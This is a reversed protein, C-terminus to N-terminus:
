DYFWSSTFELFQYFRSSEQEIPMKLSLVVIFCFNLIFFCDFEYFLFILIPLHQFWLFFSLWRLNLIWIILHRLLSYPLSRALLSFFNGKTSSLSNSNLMITSFYFIHQQKKKKKKTIRITFFPHVRLFYIFQIKQALKLYQFHVFNKTPCFHRFNEYTHFNKDSMTKGSLTYWKWGFFDWSFVTIELFAIEKILSKNEQWALFWTKVYWTLLKEEKFTM